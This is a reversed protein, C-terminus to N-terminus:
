RLSLTPRPPFLATLTVDVNKAKFLGALRRLAASDDGTSRAIVVTDCRAALAVKQTDSHVGTSDVVVVEGAWATRRRDAPWGRNIRADDIGSADVFHAVRGRRGLADVLEQGPAVIRSPDDAADVLVVYATDTLEAPIKLMFAAIDWTDGRNTDQTGDLVIQDGLDALGEVSGITTSRDRRTLALPVGLLLGLVGGALGLPIPGPGSRGNPTEAAGIVSGPTLDVNGLQALQAALAEVQIAIARQQYGTATRSQRQLSTLQAQAAKELRDVEATGDERRTTLYAEAVADAGAVAQAPTSGKFSIALVLSDDPTTVSVAKQVQAASFTYEPALVEAAAQAVTRSRVVQQETPMNVTQNSAPQLPNSRMPSVSVTTEASYSAPIALSAVVGLVAGVLVTVGVVPWHRRVKRALTSLEVPTPAGQPPPTSM